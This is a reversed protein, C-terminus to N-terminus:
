LRFIIRGNQVASSSSAPMSFRDNASKLDFTVLLTHLLLTTIYIYRFHCHNPREDYFFYINFYILILRTPTTVTRWTMIYALQHCKQIFNAFLDSDGKSSYTSSFDFTALRRCSDIM